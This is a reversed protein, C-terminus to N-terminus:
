MSVHSILVSGCYFLIFGYVAKLAVMALRDIVLLGTYMRPTETLEPFFVQQFIYFADAINAFIEVSLGLLIITQFLVTMGNFSIVALKSELRCYDLIHTKSQSLVAVPIFTDHNESNPNCRVFKLLGMMNTTLIGENNFETEPIPHVSERGAIANIAITRICYNRASHLVALACLMMMMIVQRILVLVNLYHGAIYISEELEGKMRFSVILILMMTIHFGLFNYLLFICCKQNLECMESFFKNCNNLVKNLIDIKLWIVFFAFENFILCAFKDSYNIYDSFTNIEISVTYSRYFIEAICM